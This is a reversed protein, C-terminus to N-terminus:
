DEPAEGPRNAVPRLATPPGRRAWTFEGADEDAAPIGRQDAGAREDHAVGEVALSSLAPLHLSGRGSRRPVRARLPLPAAVEEPLRGRAQHVAARSDAYMMRRYDEAVAWLPASKGTSNTCSSFLLM